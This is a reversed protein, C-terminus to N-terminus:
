SRWGRARGTAAPPVLGHDGPQPAAICGASWRRELLARHMGVLRYVAEWVTVGREAVVPYSRLEAEYRCWSAVPDAGARRVPAPGHDRLRIVVEGLVVADGDAVRSGTM